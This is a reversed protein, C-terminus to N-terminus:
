KDSKKFYKRIADGDQDSPRKLKHKASRKPIRSNNSTTPKPFVDLKSHGGLGDYSINLGSENEKLNPLPKEKKHFISDKELTKMQPRHCATNVSNLLAFESPQLYISIHHTKWIM